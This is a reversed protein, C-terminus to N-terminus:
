VCLASSPARLCWDTDSAAWSWKWDVELSVHLHKFTISWDSCPVVAHVALYTLGQEVPSEGDGHVPLPEGRSALLTFKPIMKEPFQHPGYVNNGRTIIVPLKYSCVVCLRLLGFGHHSIKSKSGIVCHCITSCAFYRRVAPLCLHWATIAM